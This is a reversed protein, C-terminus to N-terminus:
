TDRLHVKNLYSSLVKGAGKCIDKKKKEKIVLLDTTSALVFIDKQSKSTGRVMHAHAAPAQTSAASYPAAEM